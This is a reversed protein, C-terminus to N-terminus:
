VGYKDRLAEERMRECEDNGPPPGLLPVSGVLDQLSRRPTAGHGDAHGAPPADPAAVVVKVRQNEPLTVNGLPKSVGNQYIADITTV